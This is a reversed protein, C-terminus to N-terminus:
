YKGLQTEINYIKRMQEIFINQGGYSPHRVKIVDLDGALKLAAQEADNGIAILRKPKLYTILMELLDEGAKREISNHARNSFPSDPQYPHLPFVNWLFIPSKIQELISWIVAATREPVPKGKTIKKTEVSWRGLHELLHIDDTLALGTRRGGRHGLDRGIWISDIEVKSAAELMKKLITRRFAPANSYDYVECLDSYPNFTNDFKLRSLEKIFINPNMKVELQKTHLLENKGIEL